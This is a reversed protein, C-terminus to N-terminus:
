TDLLERTLLDLTISTNLEMADPPYIERIYGHYFRQRFHEAAAERGKHSLLDTLERATDVASQRAARLFFQTKERDLLGLHPLLAQQVPLKEAKEISALTMEYGVLYSPVVTREGDFVGLTECALLLGLSEEWFGISCRTHGPLELARFRLKGAEIRDGDKVPLDVRLPPLCAPYDTVGCAAAFKRDMEEMRKLASPKQFIGAAYEGAVVRAEPWRQLAFAAGCAHDYHSHTLFIFDLARGSLLEELKQVLAPGTFGFGSDYLIATEGNDILFASDGPLTRADCIRLQM